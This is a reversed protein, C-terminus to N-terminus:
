HQLMTAYIEGLKETVSKVSFDGYVWKDSEKVINERLTADSLIQDLKRALADIDGVPFILGNVADKVIDPIGGVPTMVCPIGYAWADLIGMPFGEGESALCYVATDQFVREKKDGAVWGLWEVQNVIGLEAAIHQGDELENIGEQLYPNGAFAVKWDPYKTAIKGFAKLLVDYGKRKCLTGAFLIQKKRTSLDRKAEPCPNWLVEM